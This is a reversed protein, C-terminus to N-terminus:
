KAAEQGLRELADALRALAQPSLPAAENLYRALASPPVGAAGSLVYRPLNLEALRARVQIPQM